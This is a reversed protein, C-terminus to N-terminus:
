DTWYGLSMLAAGEANCDSYSLYHNFYTYSCGSPGGCQPQVVGSPRVTSASATTAAGAFAVTALATTALARKMTSKM